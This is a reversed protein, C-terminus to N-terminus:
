ESGGTEDPWIVEEKEHAIFHGNGKAEYETVYYLTDTIPSELIRGDDEQMCTYCCYLADVTEDCGVCPVIGDSMGSVELAVTVSTLGRTPTPGFATTARRVFSQWLLANSYSLCYLNAKVTKHSDTLKIICGIM